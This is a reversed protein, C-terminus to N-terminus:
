PATLRLYLGLSWYLFLGLTSIGMIKLAERVRSEKEQVLVFLLKSTFGVFGSVLYLGASHNLEPM